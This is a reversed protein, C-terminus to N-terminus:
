EGGGMIRFRRAPFDYLSSMAAQGDVWYGTLFTLGARELRPEIFVKSAGSFKKLFFRYVVIGAQSPTFTLTLMRKTQFTYAGTWVSEDISMTSAAFGISASSSHNFFEAELYCELNNPLNTGNAWNDFNIYITRTQLTAPVNDEIWDGFVQVPNEMSCNSLPIVEISSTSLRLNATNKIIDAFAHYKAHTDKVRNVHEVTYYSHDYLPLNRNSSQRLSSGFGANKLVLPKGTYPTTWNQHVAVDSTNNNIIGEANRSLWGSYVGGSTFLGTSNAYIYNDPHCSFISSSYVGLSNGYIKNGSALRIDQCFIIAHNNAFFKNGQLFVYPTGRVGSNCSIINCNIISCRKISSASNETVQQGNRVSTNEMRGNFGLHWGWFGTIIADKVITTGQLVSNSDYMFPRNANHNGVTTVAGVKQIRVNRSANVVMAGLFFSGTPFAESITITTKVGDWTLSSITVRATDTTWASFTTGKHVYLEQGALWRGVFNGVVQFSQGTTWDAFLTSWDLGGYFDADGYINCYGGSAIILGRANDATTNFELAATFTKPIPTTSSGIRLEGGSAVTLNSHGFRLGTNSASSFSLLGNVTSAGLEHTHVQTITATMGASVTFTDGALNPFGGGGWTTPSEFNGTQTQTYAPM